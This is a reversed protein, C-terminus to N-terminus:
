QRHCRRSAGLCFEVSSLTTSLTSWDIRLIFYVLLMMIHVRNIFIMVYYLTNYICLVQHCTLLKPKQKDNTASHMCSTSEDICTICIYASAIWTRKTKRLREKARAHEGAYRNNVVEYLIGSFCILEPVYIFSPTSLFYSEVFRSFFFIFIHPSCCNYCVRIYLSLLCLCASPLGAAAAARSHERLRIRQIHQANSQLCM